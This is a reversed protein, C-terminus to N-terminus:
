WGGNLIIHVGGLAAGSAVLTLLIPFGSRFVAGQKTQITDVDIWVQAGRRFWGTVIVADHLKLLETPRPAQSVISGVFGTRSTFHLRILGTTTQLLLDQYLRNQFGRRGLLTGQIRVPMSDIPLADAQRLLTELAPDALCASRHITPFHPNISLLLGVGFGLGLWGQWLSGRELWLWDLSIWNAQYSIWGVAGLLLSIGLGVASGVLPAMQLLMTQVSPSRPASSTPPDFESALQWRNAYGALQKLRDGLLPHSHWVAFWRRYPHLCDWGFLSATPSRSYVSGVSTAARADVPLLLAFSELVAPTQGQHQLAEAMGITIKLLARIRGNPNGTRETAWRDGYYQRRQSLWRGAWACCWYAGYGISSVLVAMSQLVRDSQRDGWIAVTSYMWYPLQAVLVLGSLVSISWTDIPELEAACMTAIEDDSLQQLLGRSIAIRRYRPLHGYSFILPATTPLIGLRPMIQPSCRRQFLRASEPSHIALEQLSLPKLRYCRQLIRDFLWPSVSFLVGVTLVAVGTSDVEVYLSRVFPIWAFFFILGNITTQAITLLTQLVWILLLVTLGQLGWLPWTPQPALRKPQRRGAQRWQLSTSPPATTVHSQSREVSATPMPSDTNTYTLLAAIIEEDSEEAVLEEIAESIVDSEIAYSPSLRQIRTERNVNLETPPTSPKKKLPSIASCAPNPQKPIAALPIFGTKDLRDKDLQDLKDLQSSDNSGATAPVSPPQLRRELRQLQVLTRKAWTQIQPQPHHCLPHCQAKARDLQGTIGYAKILGMQAKLRQAPDLTMREVRQLNEIATQYNKDQLAVLGAHLVATSLETPTRDATPDAFNSM